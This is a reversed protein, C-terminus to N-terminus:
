VTMEVDHGFNPKRHRLLYAIMGYILEIHTDPMKRAGQIYGSYFCALKVFVYTKDGDKAKCIWNLDRVISIKYTDALLGDVMGDVVFGVLYHVKHNYIFTKYVIKKVGHIMAWGPKAIYQKHKRSRLKNLNLEYCDRFLIEQYLTREIIGPVTPSYDTHYTSIHELGKMIKYGYYQLEEDKITPM